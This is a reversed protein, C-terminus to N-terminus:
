PSIGIVASTARAEIGEYRIQPFLRFSTGGRSLNNRSIRVRTGSANLPFIDATGSSLPHISWLASVDEVVSGNATTVVIRYDAVANVSNLNPPGSELEVRLTNNLNEAPPTVRRPPLIPDGILSILQMEQNGGSGYSVTVQVLRFTNPMARSYPFTEYRANKQFDGEDDFAYPQAARSLSGPNTPRTFFTSCPSHVGNSPTLGSTPVIRHENDLVRVDFDFGPSDSYAPHPGSIIDDIHDAFTSGAPVLSSRARIEEMKREALLTAKRINSSSSEWRLSADFLSASAAFAFVMLFCAVIAEVVLVGSLLRRSHFGNLSAM